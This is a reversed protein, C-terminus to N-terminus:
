FLGQITGQNDGAAYTGTIARGPQGGALGASGATGAGQNGAAGTGGNFGSAGPQGFTGGAGGQGGSGGAGANNTGAAGAAGAAGSANAQAHGAGTGGNGGAGGASGLSSASSPYTRYIGYYYDTYTYYTDYMGKAQGSQTYQLGGVYYIISGSYAYPQGEPSTVNPGSNLSNGWYYQFDPTSGYIGAGGGGSRRTVGFRGDRSPGPWSFYEGSSPERATFNFIGPGGTGGNGGRGGGGGGGRIFGGPMVTWTVRPDEILLAPGGNGGNVAGGAGRIDGLVRIDLEGGFGSDTRLAPTSISTSGVIVGPAIAVRKPTSSLWEAETFLARANVNTTQVLITKTLWYKKGYFNSLALGGSSPVGDDIGYLTSFVVAGAIQFEDKLDQFSLDGTTPLPM